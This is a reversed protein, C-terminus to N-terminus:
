FTSCFFTITIINNNKNNSSNNGENKYLGWAYENKNFGCMM